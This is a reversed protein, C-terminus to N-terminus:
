RRRDAGPHFGNRVSVHFEALEVPGHFRASLTEVIRGKLIPEAQYIVTVIIITAGIAVPLAIWQMWWLHSRAAKRPNGTGAPETTERGTLPGPRLHWECQFCYSDELGTRELQHTLGSESLKRFDHHCTICFYALHLAAMRLRTGRARPHRTQVASWCCLNVLRMKDSRQLM